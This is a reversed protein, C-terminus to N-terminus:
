WRVQQETHSIITLPWFTPHLTEASTSSPGCSWEVGPRLPRRFVSRRCSCCFLAELVEHSKAFISPFFLRPIQPPLFWPTSEFCAEKDFDTRLFFVFPKIRSLCTRTHPFTTLPFDIIPNLPISGVSFVILLAAALSLQGQGFLSLSSLSFFFTYSVAPSFLSLPSLPLSTPWPLPQKYCSCADQVRM